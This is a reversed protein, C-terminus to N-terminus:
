QTGLKIRRANDGGLRKLAARSAAVYPQFASDGPAWSEAVQLYGDIAIAKEGLRDAVRAREFTMLLVYINNDVGMTNLLALAERDRGKAELLQATPLESLGCAHCLSDPLTLLLQLAGASDRRALQLFAQLLQRYYPANGRLTPSKTVKVISDFQKEVALVLATDNHEAFYPLFCPVCDDGDGSRIRAAIAAMSDPPYGGVTAYLGRQWGHAKSLAFAERARGRELLRSGVRRREVLTDGLVLYTSHRSPSVLKALRVATQASDPYSYVAVSSFNLVDNSATDLMRATESSGATRPDTIRAVLRMADAERDTPDQALYAKLYRQGAPLGGLRFGLTIAHLYVPSASSDVAIARDFSEMIKEPPLGVIPGWAWHYQADAKAYLVAPDGPYRQAALDLTAFLRQLGRLDPTNGPADWALTEISDAAILLSDRPSLHHNFRGARRQYVITLSDQGGRAWGNAMGLGRSALAFTSDLALARAYAAVASDWSSQRYFQEGQLFAKLAPLSTTGISSIRETGQQSSRSFKPVLAFTISDALRDIRNRSDRREIEGLTRGTRVDMVSVQARVTDAGALLGYVVYRAGTAKGLEIASSADARGSWRKIVISPAVTRLQGAGDLNRSLVDVMGDKWLQLDADIADFPAVALLNDDLKPRSRWTAILAVGALVLAAAAAIWIRRRGGGESAGASAGLADRFEEATRYREDPSKALSKQIATSVNVPVDPRTKNVPPPPTTLHAALMAQASPASFPLQGALMEYGVIALAYLDARADIHREGSAQEPAMYTPTGVSMGTGTMRSLDAGSRAEDIARAVGFDALVAHGDELLINEPKIDRHVIGKRHAYGLADAVERLIRTAEEVPM